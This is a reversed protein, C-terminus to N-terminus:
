SALLLCEGFAQVDDTITVYVHQTFSPYKQAYPRSRDKLWIESDAFLCFAGNM